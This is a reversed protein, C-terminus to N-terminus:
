CRVRPRSTSASITFNITMTALTQCYLTLWYVLFHNVGGRLGAIPYVLISYWFTIFIRFLASTFAILQVTRFVDLFGVSKIASLRLLHIRPNNLRTCNNVSGFASQAFSAFKFLLFFSEVEKTNDTDDGYAFALLLGVTTYFLFNGFLNVPEVFAELLYRCFDRWWISM